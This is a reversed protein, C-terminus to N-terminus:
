GGDKERGEIINDHCCDVAERVKKNGGPLGLTNTFEKNKFDGLKQKLQEIGGASVLM